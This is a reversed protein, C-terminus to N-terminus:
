VCKEMVYNTLLIGQLDVQQEKIVCYGRKEFFPRATISAHTTIKGSQVTSELADCLATAVGQGQYDKHMYLRDLYGTRDMDGFGIIRAGDVAVLTHHELFSTGWRDADVKGNAWVHLQEATYDKANVTHVTDYFLAAIEALDTPEYKRIHMMYEGVYKNILDIKEMGTACARKQLRAYEATM